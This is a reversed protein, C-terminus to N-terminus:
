LFDRGESFSLPSPTIDRRFPSLELSVNVLCDFFLSKDLLFMFVIEQEDRRELTTGFPRHSVVCAIGVPRNSDSFLCPASNKVEIVLLIM